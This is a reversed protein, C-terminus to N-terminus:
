CTALSARAEDCEIDIGPPHLFVTENKRLRSLAV